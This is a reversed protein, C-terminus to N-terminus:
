SERAHFVEPIEPNGQIKREQDSFFGKATNGALFFKILIGPQYSPFNIL